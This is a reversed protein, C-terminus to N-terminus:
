VSNGRTGGRRGSERDGTFCLGGRLGLASAERWSVGGGAFKWSYMIEEEPLQFNVTCSFMAQDGRTM